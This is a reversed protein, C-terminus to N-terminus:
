DLGARRFGELHNHTGLVGNTNIVRVQARPRTRHYRCAGPSAMSAKLLTDISNVFKRM